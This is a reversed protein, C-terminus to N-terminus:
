FIYLIIIFTKVFNQKEWTEKEAEGDDNEM